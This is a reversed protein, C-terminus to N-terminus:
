SPVDIRLEGCAADLDPLRLSGDDASNAPIADWYDVPQEHWWARVGAKSTTRCRGPARLTAKGPVRVECAARRTNVDIVTAGGLRERHAEGLPSRVAVALFVSSLRM